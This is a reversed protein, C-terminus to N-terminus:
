LGDLCKFMALAMLLEWGLDLWPGLCLLPWLFSGVFPWGLEWAYCPGHFVSLSPVDLSGLMALTMHLDWRFGNLSGLMALAMLIELRLAMWARLCLLPWSSSLFSPVVLSGLLDLAMLIEWRFAMWARLCLLPCSFSGVFTWGLVFAYCPIHSAKLSPGDLNGLMALEM